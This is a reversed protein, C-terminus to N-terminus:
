LGKNIEYVLAESAKAVADSTGHEYLLSGISIQFAGFAAAGIIALSVGLMSGSSLFGAVLAVMIVAAGLVMMFGGIIQLPIGAHVLSNQIENNYSDHIEKNFQNLEETGPKSLYVRTKELWSAKEAYSLKSKIIKDLLDLGLNQIYDPYRKIEHIYRNNVLYFMHIDKIRDSDCEDMEKLVDLIIQDMEFAKDKNRELYAYIQESFLKIVSFFAQNKYGQDWIFKYEDSQSIAALALEATLKNSVSDDTNFLHQNRHIEKWYFIYHKLIKTGLDLNDKSVVVQSRIEKIHNVMNLLIVDIEQKNQTHLLQQKLSDNTICLFLAAILASRSRGAKCHIYINGNNKHVDVMKQLVQVILLPDANTAFDSFPLHQHEINYHTWIHPPIISCFTGVGSLEFHDNCSVVLGSNALKKRLPDLFSFLPMQGLMVEGTFETAEKIVNFSQWDIHARAQNYFHTFGYALKPSLNPEQFSFFPKFAKLNM